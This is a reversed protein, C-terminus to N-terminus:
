IITARSRGPVRSCSNGSELPYEFTFYRSVIERGRFRLYPLSDSRNQSRAISAFSNNAISGEGYCEAIFIVEDRSYTKVGRTYYTQMHKHM